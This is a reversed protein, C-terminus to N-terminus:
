AVAVLREKIKALKQTDVVLPRSGLILGERKLGSLKKATTERTLGSM